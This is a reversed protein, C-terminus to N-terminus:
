VYPTQLGGRRFSGSIGKLDSKGAPTLKDRLQNFEASLAANTNSAFGQSSKLVQMHKIPRMIYHNVGHLATAAEQWEAPTFAARMSNFYDETFGPAQIAKHDDAFDRMSGVAQLRAFDALYVGGSPVRVREVESMVRMLLDITPLHHLTMVSTVCDISRDPFVQLDTIDGHRLELNDIGAAGANVSAQQLMKDSLDLGIFHVQPNLKAVQVLQVAPGCGLDLVRSGPHLLSCIHATHFLHTPAMVDAGSQAYAGVKDTAVMVLDPEPQRDPSSRTCTERALIRLATITNM